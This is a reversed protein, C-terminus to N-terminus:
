RALISPFVTQFAKSEVKFYLMDTLLYSFWQRLNGDNISSIAGRMRPMQQEVNFTYFLM